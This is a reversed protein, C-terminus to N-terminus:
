ENSETKIIENSNEIQDYKKFWFMSSDKEKKLETKLKRNELLLEIIIEDKTEM